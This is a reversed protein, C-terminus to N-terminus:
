KRCIEVLLKNFVNKETVWPANLFFHGDSNIKDIIVM